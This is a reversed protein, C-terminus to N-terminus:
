KRKRKFCISIMCIALGIFSIAFPATVGTKPLVHPIPDNYITIMMNETTEEDIVFPYVEESPVYGDSASVERLEYKGYALGKLVIKGSDDTTFQEKSGDAKTLEFITGPIPITTETQYKQIEVQILQEEVNPAEYSTVLESSGQSVIQRVYLTDNRFYGEPAKTEQITLTGLPLSAYLADGSIKYEEQYRVQGKEDTQFIWTRAPEQGLTMPDTDKEWLGTYFKVIFQAGKLSADGQPEARKTEADVKKILIEIPNTQPVETLELVTTKESSVTFKTVESSLAYGKPATLEKVYYTSPALEILNSEGTENTVLTGVRTNESLQSSSYIAYKADSLSYCANNKTIEEQQSKKLVKVYGNKEIQYFALDQQSTSTTVAIYAKFNSPPTPYETPNNVLDWYFEDYKASAGTEREGINADSIAIATLVHARADTGLTNKPGNYGYYLAKRIIENDTLSISEITAGVPPWTKSYEACYAHIGNVGYRGTSIGWTIKEYSTVTGAAANSKNTGFLLFACCVLMCLSLLIQIRKKLTEGGKLM